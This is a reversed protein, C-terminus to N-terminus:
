GGAEWQRDPYRRMLDGIWQRVQPDEGGSYRQYAQYHRIACDMNRLYLDCLIGLNLHALRYDPRLKLAQEYAERAAHFRGTKRRVIGLENYAIANSPDEELVQRFSREAEVLKDLHSYTIGLNLLALVSRDQSAVIPIWLAEAQVYRQARMLSIAHQFENAKVGDGADTVTVAANGTAIRATQSGNNQEM